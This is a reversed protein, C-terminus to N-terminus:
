APVQRNESRRWEEGSVAAGGLVGPVRTAKFIRMLRSLWTPRTAPDRIFRFEFRAGRTSSDASITGRVTVSRTVKFSELKIGAPLPMAGVEQLLKIQDATFIDDTGISFSLSNVGMPAFQRLLRTLIPYQM